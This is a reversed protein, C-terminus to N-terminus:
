PYLEKGALKRYEELLARVTRLYAPEFPVIRDVGFLTLIQRGRPYTHLNLGGEEITARKESDGSEPFCTVFELFKPSIALAVLEQELQPNLEVMIALSSQRVLAADAQDFFVALVAQSTKKVKKIAGFYEEQRGLGAKLLLTELWITALSNEVRAAEAMLVKGRLQDLTELGGARHVLLIFELQIGSSTVSVLAPELIAQDGMDLYDLVPLTLMDVEGAKVTRIVEAQDDLLVIRPVIEKGMSATLQRGWLEVAVQMDAENVEVFLRGSYGVRVSELASQPEPDPAQGRASGPALMWAFILSWAMWGWHRMGIM